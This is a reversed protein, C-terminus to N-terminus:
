SAVSCLSQPPLPPAAVGEKGGEKETRGDTRADTREAETRGAAHGADAEAAVAQLQQRSVLLHNPLLARGVPSGGAGAGWGRQGRAAAAAAGKNGGPGAAGCGPPLPLGRFPAAARSPQPPAAKTRAPPPAPRALRPVPPGSRGSAAGAARQSRHGSALQPSAPDLHTARPRRARRSGMGRGRGEAGSGPSLHAGPPWPCRRWRRAPLSRAPVPRPGAILALATQGAWGPGALACLFALAPPPASRAPPRPAGGM